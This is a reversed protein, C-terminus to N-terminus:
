WQPSYSQVCFIVIFASIALLFKEDTELILKGLEKTAKFFRKFGIADSMLGLVGADAARPSTEVLQKYSQEIVEDFLVFMGITLSCMFVLFGEIKHGNIGTVGIVWAVGAGVGTGILVFLVGKGWSDVDELFPHIRPHIRQGPTIILEAAKAGALYFGNYLLSLVVITTFSSGHTWLLVDRRLIFVDFLVLPISHLHGYVYLM